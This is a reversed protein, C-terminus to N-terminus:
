AETVSWGGDVAITQGTIMESDESLLFACVGAVQDAELFGGALPQKRGSYEVTAEDQAARESMPTAVLGPLVGNIRVGSPAYYAATSRVFSNVAGKVGAYAHTGFLEPVPAISLVSGILVISGRQMRLMRRLAERTALFAPAANIEFTSRWAELSMQDAPGDGYSRGSAGAVAVLGDISDLFEEAAAFAAETEVENSLEALAFGAIGGNEAISDVLRQCDAGNRAVIFVSAGEAALRTATAAAIGTAGTIM